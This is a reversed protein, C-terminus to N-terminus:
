QSPKLSSLNAKIIRVNKGVENDDGNQFIVFGVGTSNAGDTIINIRKSPDLPSLRIQNKFVQKVQKFENEMLKTWEFKKNEACGARLNKM